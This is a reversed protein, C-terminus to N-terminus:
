FFFFFFLYILATFRTLLFHGKGQGSKPELTHQRDVALMVIQYSGAQRYYTKKGEFLLRKPVELLHVALFCRFM